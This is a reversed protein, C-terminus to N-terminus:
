LILEKKEMYLITGEWDQGLIVRKQLFNGKKEKKKKKKKPFLLNKIKHQWINRKIEGKVVGSGRGGKSGDNGDNGDILPRSLRRLM